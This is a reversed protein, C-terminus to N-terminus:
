AKGAARGLAHVLRARAVRHEKVVHVRHGKADSLARRALAPAGEKRPIGIARTLQRQVLRLVAAGLLLDAAELRHVVVADGASLLRLRGLPPPSSGRRLRPASGQRVGQRYSDALSHCSSLTVTCALPRWSLHM